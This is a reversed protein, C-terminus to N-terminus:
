RLARKGVEAYMYIFYQVHVYIKLLVNDVFIGIFSAPGFFSPLKKLSFLRTSEESDDKQMFETFPNCDQSITDKRKAM